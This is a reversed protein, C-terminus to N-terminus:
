NNEAGAAIWDRVLNLRATDLMEGTQPMLTGMAPMTQILKQYLYSDDPKGPVVLALSTVAAGKAKVNVLKSYTPADLNLGEAPASGSHCGSFLCSKKFVESEVRTLTPPAGCAALLLLLWLARM